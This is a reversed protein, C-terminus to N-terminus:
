CVRTKLPHIRFSRWERTEENMEKRIVKNLIRFKRLAWTADSGTPRNPHKRFHGGLLGRRGGERLTAFRAM